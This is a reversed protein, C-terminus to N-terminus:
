FRITTGFFFERGVLSSDVGILTERVRKDLLNKAYFSLTWANEHGGWGVPLDYNVRANVLAYSPLPQVTGDPFLGTPELIFYWFSPAVYEGKWNAEFSGRFGSFPGFYAGLNLKNKPAYSFELLNGVSDKLDGVQEQTQYAWNFVGTVKKTAAFRLELETGKVIAEDPHNEFRVILPNPPPVLGYTLVIFNEIRSRHFDFKASFNSSFRYEAGAEFTRMQEPVLGIPSPSFIALPIAFGALDSSINFFWSNQFMESFNPFRFASSYGTRLVLRDTANIVTAVRPSLKDDFLDNAGDYRFGAVV